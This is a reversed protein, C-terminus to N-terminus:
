GKSKGTPDVLVFVRFGKMTIGSKSKGPLKM